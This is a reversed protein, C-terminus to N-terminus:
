LKVKSWILLWTENIKYNEIWTACSSNKVLSLLNKNKHNIKINKLKLTFLFLYSFKFM